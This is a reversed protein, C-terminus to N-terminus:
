DPRDPPSRLDCESHLFRRAPTHRLQWPVSKHWNWCGPLPRDRGPKRCRNPKPAELEHGHCDPARQDYRGSAPRFQAVFRQVHSGAGREDVVGCGAPQDPDSDVITLADPHMQPLLSSSGGLLEGYTLQLQCSKEPSLMGTCSNSKIVFYSSPALSVGQFTLSTSSSTNTVTVTKV